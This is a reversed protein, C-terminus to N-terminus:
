VSKVQKKEALKNLKGIYEVTSVLHELEKLTLQYKSGNATNLALKLGEADDIVEASLINTDEFKKHISMEAEKAVNGIVSNVHEVVENFLQELSEKDCLRQGNSRSFCSNWLTPDKVLKEMIDADIADSIAEYTSWGEGDFINGDISLCIHGFCPDEDEGELIKTYAENINRVELSELMQVVDEYDTGFADVLVIESHINHAKLANHIAVAFMGCGGQSSNKFTKQNIGEELVAM